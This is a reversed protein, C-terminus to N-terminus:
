FSSFVFNFYILILDKQCTFDFFDSVTILFTHLVNMKIQCQNRLDTKWVTKSICYIPENHECWAVLNLHRELTLQFYVPYALPSSVPFYEVSLLLILANLGEIILGYTYQPQNPLLQGIEVEYIKVDLSPCHFIDLFFFVTM